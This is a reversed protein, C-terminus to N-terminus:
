WASLTAKSMHRQAMLVDLLTSTTILIYYVHSYGQKAAVKRCVEMGNNVMKIDVDLIKWPITGHCVWEGAAYIIEFEDKRIYDTICGYVTPVKPLLEVTVNQTSEGGGFASGTAMVMVMGAMLLVLFVKKRHM